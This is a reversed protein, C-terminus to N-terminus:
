LRHPRESVAATPRDALRRYQATVGSDAMVKMFARLAGVTWGFTDGRVNPSPPGGDCGRRSGSVRAEM